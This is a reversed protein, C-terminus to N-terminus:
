IGASSGSTAQHAPRAADRAQLLEREYAHRDTAVFLAQGGGARLEGALAEGAAADRSGLVLTAGEAAFARASAQGIGSSTGTILVVKSDFRM